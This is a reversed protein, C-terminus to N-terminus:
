GDVAFYRPYHLVCRDNFRADCEPCSPASLYDVIPLESKCVGCLIGREHFREAPWRAAAHGAHAEHCEFCPYYQGCCFFKIAIVDVETHYHVCRTQSDVTDGFVLPTAAHSGAQPISDM